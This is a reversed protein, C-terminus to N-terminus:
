NILIIEGEIWASFYSALNRKSTKEFSSILNDPTVNQFKYEEFYNQLCKIFLKEGLIENLSDFLLMGKVYAICVYERETEYEDLKRNMSSDFSGNVNQYLGEILNYYSYANSVITTLETEFEPHADFFLATSYETLGEDLWGYDFASNGVLGYWWQHAIEHVIVQNYSLRDTIDNSIYVLNPFEMGGHVFNAEVVTLNTYPYQGFTENFFNLAKQATELSQTPDTDSFYYYNVNTKGVSKSIVSFEKSLVIAFDRVGKASYELIKENNQTTENTLNGTSAVIFDRPCKFSVTYNSIDSFFPDGNYHYLEKSFDGNTYVCAIPYFNALNVTNNGYGFRHNVNPIIVDFEIKIERMENPYLPTKFIIYLINQDEGGIFYEDNELNSNKVYEAVESYTPQLIDMGNSCITTSQLVSVNKITINGYSKGNPYAKHENALSVPASISEERFANPYLNLCVFPLATETTNKYILVETASLTKEEDNYIIELNYSNAAKSEISSDTCGAFIVIILTIISIGCLVFMFKTLFKKIKM